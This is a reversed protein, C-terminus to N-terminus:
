LPQAQYRTDGDVLPTSTDDTPCTFAPNTDDGSRILLFNQNTLAAGLSTYVLPHSANGGAPTDTSPDPTYRCVRYHSASNDTASLEVVAPRPLVQLTGTWTFTATAVSGTGVIPVACYYPQFTDGSATQAPGVVCAGQFDGPDLVPSTTDVRIGGNTTPLTFGSANTGASVPIILNGDTANGNSPPTESQVGTPQVANTAFRLYGSILVAQVNRSGIRTIRATENNFTWDVAGAVGPPTFTSTTTGPTATAPIAANRGRPRQTASRGSPVALSAGLEPSVKSIATSLVVSQMGPDTTDGVAARRDWWRVTVTVTKMQPGSAAIAPVTVIRQFSANAAGTSTPTVDVASETAVDDSFNPHVAGSGLVM